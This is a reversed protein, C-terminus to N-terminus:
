AYVFSFEFHVPLVDQEKVVEVSSLELDETFGFLPVDELQYPELMYEDYIGLVLVKFKPTLDFDQIFQCIGIM